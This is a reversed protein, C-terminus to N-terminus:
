VGPRGSRLPLVGASLACANAMAPLQLSLPLCKLKLCLCSLLGRDLACAQTYKM